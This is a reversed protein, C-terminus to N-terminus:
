ESDLLQTSSIKPIIKLEKFDIQEGEKQSSMLTSVDKLYQCIKLAVEFDLQQETFLNFRGGQLGTFAPVSDVFYIVTSDTEGDQDRRKEIEMHKALQPEKKVLEDRLQQMESSDLTKSKNKRSLCSGM